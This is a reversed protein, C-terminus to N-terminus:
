RIFRRFPELICNIIKFGHFTSLYVILAIDRRYEHINERPCHM